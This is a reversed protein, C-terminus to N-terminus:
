AGITADHSCCGRKSTSFFDVFYQLDADMEPWKAKAEITKKSITGPSYVILNFLAKFQSIKDVSWKHRRMGELNPGVLRARNGHVMCFPPVDQTVKAGGALFAGRGVHCFQHIGSLGGFIAWDEVVVHGGLGACNALIVHDGVICDHAVHTYAMFLCSNGIRTVMTGGLTGRHVTAGERFTNHDGIVVSSAEGKFKLDQPELGISAFPYFKNFAGITTNGAIVVHSILETGEGITVEPGITCFPGVKVTPHLKAEPSVISTPHIIAM